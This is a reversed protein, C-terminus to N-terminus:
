RQRPGARAGRPLRDADLGVVHWRDRMRVKVGIQDEALKQGHAWTVGVTGYGTVPQPVSTITSGGGPAVATKAMLSGPAVRANAPATLPYEKVLADVPGDPVLSEKETARAYAAFALPVDAPRAAGTPGTVVDLSVINAAPTLAALILGLALLQQCVTVFRAKRVTNQSM